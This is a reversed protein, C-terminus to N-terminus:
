ICNKITPRIQFYSARNAVYQDTDMIVYDRYMTAPGIIGFKPFGKPSQLGLTHCDTGQSLPTHHHTIPIPLLLSWTKSTPCTHPDPIVPGVLQGICLILDGLGYVTVGMHKAKGVMTILRPCQQTGHAHSGKVLTPDTIALCQGVNQGWLTTHWLFNRGYVYSLLMEWSDYRVWM